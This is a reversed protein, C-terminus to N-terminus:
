DHKRILEIMRKTLRKGPVPKIRGLIEIVDIFDSKLGWADEFLDTDTVRIDHYSIFQTSILGMPKMKEKRLFPGISYIITYDFQYQKHYEEKSWNKV